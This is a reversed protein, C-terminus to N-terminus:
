QRTIPFYLARKTPFASRPGCSGGINVRRSIARLRHQNEPSRFSERTCLLDEMSSFRKKQMVSALGGGNKDEPSILHYTDYRFPKRKHMRSNCYLFNTVPSSVVGCKLDFQKQKTKDEFVLHVLFVGGFASQLSFVQLSASIM